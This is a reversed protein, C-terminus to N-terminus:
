PNVRETRLKKLRFFGKFEPYLRMMKRAYDPTYNNSIKFKEGSDVATHWRILEIIGKASYNKFGKAKAEITFQVFHKWIAPNAKDYAQFDIM